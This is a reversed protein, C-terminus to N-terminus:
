AGVGEVILIGGAIARRTTVTGETADIRALRQDRDSELKNIRGQTLQATRRQKEDFSSRQRQLLETLQAIRAASRERVLLRAQEARRYNEQRFAHREALFREDLERECLQFVGYLVDEAGSFEAADIRTGTKLAGDLLRDAVGTELMEGSPVSLVLSQLRIDRRMGALHWLDTAFVYIGPPVDEPADHVALAVVPEKNEARNVMKSRAFAILPHTIDLLEPRPRAKSQDAVDFVVSIEVGPVQLRTGRHPRHREIYLALEARAAPSLQLHFLGPTNHDSALRSGPYTEILFDQLFGRLDDPRLWRGADRGAQISSLIFDMSGALEPAEDELQKVARRHEAAALANQELRLAVQEASLGERFYDILLEEVSEGLIEEIDGISEEFVGIRAYLRNLIVEEITGEIVFSVIKITESKQGLRDIRGIRQEVRMPNWPLDYNVIVRAFQLDIGESGVESSLLIKPGHPDAFRAIEAEKAEGMGGRILATSIGATNLRRQLYDLTGRFFSFVVVKDHPHEAFWLRLFGAFAAFKTDDAELQDLLENTIPTLSLESNSPLDDADATLDLGESLLDAIDPKTRWSALAAPVSSALQRQRVILALTNATDAGLARERITRSIDVYIAHEKAALRIPLVKPERLVRNEIVDRKRTRNLVGSLLSREELQRALRVRDDHAELDPLAERWGQILKDTQFFRSRALESVAIEFSERDCPSRRIANLARTVASNARRLSEFSDLSAFRDPDILRLLHFLNESGIQIPTATLLALHSTAAALLQGVQHNATEPNRMYHAEDVIVLDFLSTDADMEHAVLFAGLATRANRHSQEQAQARRVRISELGAIVFFSKNRDQEVERALRLLESATVISADIAFRERLEGQWKTRLVAPCVVLLRRAAHRAQLERWIYIAEVTKGLGVEDAILIRGLGSSLFTIVPKFQHPYFTAHGSGMSYIVDTLEGRIKETTVARAAASLASFRMNEFAASRSEELPAIELEDAPIPEEEGGPYRVYIYTLGQLRRSRGTSVGAKAPNHISRVAVGASEVSIM